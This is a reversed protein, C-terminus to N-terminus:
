IRTYEEGKRDKYSVVQNFDEKSASVTTKTFFNMNNRRKEKGISASVTFTDFTPKFETIM